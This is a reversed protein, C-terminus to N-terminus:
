IPDAFAGRCQLPLALLAVMFMTSVLREIVDRRLGMEVQGCLNM